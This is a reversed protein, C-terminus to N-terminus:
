TRDCKKSTKLPCEDFHGDDDNKLRRDDPSDKMYLHHTADEYYVGM